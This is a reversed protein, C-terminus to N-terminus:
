GPYEHGAAASAAPGLAVEFLIGVGGTFRAAPHWFSRTKEVFGFREHLAISARNLASAFYYARRARETIWELRAATLSAGLGRRRFGPAVVVGALYWGEPAADVPSGPPPRFYQVKGFGALAAPLEAVLLLVIESGPAARISREFSAAYVEPDGGNREASLAGLAGADSVRAPRITLGDAPGLPTERRGEPDYDAFLNAM